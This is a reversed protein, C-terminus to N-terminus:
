ATASALVTTGLSPLSPRSQEPGQPSARIVAAQGPCALPRDPKIHVPFPQLWDLLPLPSILPGAPRPGVRAPTQKEHELLAM